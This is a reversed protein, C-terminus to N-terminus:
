IQEVKKLTLIQKITHLLYINANKRRKNAGTYLPLTGGMRTDGM